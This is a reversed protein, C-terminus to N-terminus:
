TYSKNSVLASALSIAGDIITINLSHISQIRVLVGSDCDFAEKIVQEVDNHIAIPIPDGKENSIIHKIKEPVIACEDPAIYAFLGCYKANDSFKGSNKLLGVIRCLYYDYGNVRIVNEM